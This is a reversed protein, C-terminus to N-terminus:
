AQSSVVVEQVFYCTLILAVFVQEEQVDHPCVVALVGPRPGASLSPKPSAQGVKGSDIVPLQPSIWDMLGLALASM